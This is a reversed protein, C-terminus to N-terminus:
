LRDWLGGTPTLNRLITSSFPIRGWRRSRRATPTSRAAGARRGRRAAECSRGSPRQQRSRRCGGCRTGTATGAWPSGVWSCPRATSRRTAAHRCAPCGGRGAGGCPGHGPSAKGGGCWVVGAGGGAHVALRHVGGAAPLLPPPVVGLVHVAALAVDE